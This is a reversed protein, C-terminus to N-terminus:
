LPGGPAFDAGRDIRIEYATNPLLEGNNYNIIGLEDSELPDDFDDEYFYYDGSDDTTASAIPLDDDATGPEGDHGVGPRYLQVLVGPIPPENPEQIGDGNVDLWVRNGLEFPARDCLLELDGLGAAKGFTATPGGADQEFVEYARDRRGSTNNFWGVGGSRYSNVPDFLTTMVEGSGPLLTIGGLTTEEHKGGDVNEDV